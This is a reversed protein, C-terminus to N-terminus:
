VWNWNCILKKTIDLESKSTSLIERLRELHNITTTNQWLKPWKGPACESASCISGGYHHGLSTKQLRIMMSLWWHACSLHSWARKDDPIIAIIKRSTARLLFDWKRSSNNYELICPTWHPTTTKQTICFVFFPHIKM